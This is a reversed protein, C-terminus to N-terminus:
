NNADITLQYYKIFKSYYSLRHNNAHRSQIKYFLFDPLFDKFYERAKLKLTDIKTKHFDFYQKPIRWGKGYECMLYAEYDTPACYQKGMFEITSINEMFQSLMMTGDCDYVFDDMKQFICFDVYEGNRMVSIVNHRNYRIVSFGIRLLDPLSDILLQRYRYDIALDIDEDHEIFGKERVAGLLTGATLIFQVGNNDLVNKIAELNQKSIDANIMSAGEYLPTTHIRVKENNSTFLYRNFLM